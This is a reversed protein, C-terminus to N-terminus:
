KAGDVYRVEIPKWYIATASSGTIRVDMDTHTRDPTPGFLRRVAVVVLAVVNVTLVTRTHRDVM